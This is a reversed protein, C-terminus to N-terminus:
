GTSPKRASPATSLTGLKVMQAVTATAEVAPMDALLVRNASTKHGALVLATAYDARIRPTANASRALPGLITEGEAPNGGLALTLGLNVNASQMSPDIALAAHFATTAASFHSQESEAIGLDNFAAANSPADRVAHTFDAAATRPDTQLACRGRGIEAEALHPSTGLSQRYDASAGVCNKLIFYADGRVILAEADTPNNRLVANAVTLALQPNGGALASRAVNLTQNGIKAQGSPAQASCAALSGAVLFALTHHQFPWPGHRRPRNLRQKM